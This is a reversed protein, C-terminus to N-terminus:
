GNELIRRYISSAMCPKPIHIYMRIGPYQIYIVRTDRCIGFISKSIKLRIHSHAIQLFFHIISNHFRHLFPVHCSQLFTFPFQERTGYIYIHQAQSEFQCSQMNPPYLICKHAILFVTQDLYSNLNNFLVFVYM